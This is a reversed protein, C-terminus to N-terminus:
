AGVGKPKRYHIWIETVGFLPLSAAVAIGLPTALSIVAMVAILIRLSKPMNWSKFLHTVIGLGQAAYALSVVLACNWAFAAAAIPARLLVAALVLSWSALFAWIFPYPLRLGDIAGSQERGRSGAGSM